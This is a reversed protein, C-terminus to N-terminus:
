AEEEKSEGTVVLPKDSIRLGAEAAGEVIAKIRGHYKFGGRDVVAAKVGKSMALDAARKGLEKASGVSVKVDGGLTSVAAVTRSNDDDIFQVYMNRNSIM